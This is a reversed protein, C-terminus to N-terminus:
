WRCSARAARPVSAASGAAQGAAGSCRFECSTQGDAHGGWYMCGEGSHVAQAQCGAPGGQGRLQRLERQPPLRRRHRTVCREAVVHDATRGHDTAQPLAHRRRGAAGAGGAAAVSGAPPWPAPRRSARLCRRRSRSACCLWEQGPTRALLPAPYPLTPYPTDRGQVWPHLWSAPCAAPAGHVAVRRRVRCPLRADAKATRGARVAPAQRPRPTVAACGAARAARVGGGAHMGCTPSLPTEDRLRLRCAGSCQPWPARSFPACSCAPASLM